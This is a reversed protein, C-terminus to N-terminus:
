KERWVHGPYFNVPNIDRINVGWIGKDFMPLNGTPIVPFTTPEVGGVVKKMQDKSVKMDTPLDQIKIRAM